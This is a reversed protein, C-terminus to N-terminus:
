SNAFTRLRKFCAMEEKWRLDNHSKRVAKGAALSSGSHPAKAQWPSTDILVVAICITTRM